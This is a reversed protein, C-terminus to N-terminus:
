QSQLRLITKRLLSRLFVRGKPAAFSRSFITQLGTLDLRTNPLMLLLTYYGNISILFATTSDSIAITLRVATTSNYATAISVSIKLDASGKGKREGTIPAGSGGSVNRANYKGKRDDYVYDYKVQLDFYRIIEM